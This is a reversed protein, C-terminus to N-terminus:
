KPEKILIEQISIPLCDTQKRTNLEMLKMNLSLTDLQDILIDKSLLRKIYKTILYLLELFFLELVDLWEGLLGIGFFLLPVYDGVVDPLFYFIVGMGLFLGATIFMSLIAADNKMAKKINVRDM